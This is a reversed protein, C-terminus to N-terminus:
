AAFLHDVTVWTAAPDWWNNPLGADGERESCILTRSEVRAM